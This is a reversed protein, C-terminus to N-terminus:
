NKPLYESLNKEITILYLIANNGLENVIILNLEFVEISTKTFYAFLSM